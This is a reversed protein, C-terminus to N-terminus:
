LLKCNNHKSICCKYELSKSQVDFSKKEAIKLVFKNTVFKRGEQMFKNKDKWLLYCEKWQHSFVKFNNFRKM